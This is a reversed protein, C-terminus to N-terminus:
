CETCLECQRHMVDRRTPMVIVASPATPGAAAATPPQVTTTTPTSSQDQSETTGASRRRAPFSQESTRHLRTPSHKAVAQPSHLGAEPKPAKATCRLLVGPKESKRKNQKPLKVQSFFQLWIHVTILQLPQFDFCLRLVCFSLQLLQVNPIQYFFAMLNDSFYATSLHEKAM